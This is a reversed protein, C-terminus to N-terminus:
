RRLWSQWDNQVEGVPRGTPRFSWPTLQALRDLELSIADILGCDPLEGRNLTESLEWWLRPYGQLCIRIEELLSL